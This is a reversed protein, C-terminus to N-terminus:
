WGIQRAAPSRCILPVLPTISYPEALTLRSWAVLSRGRKAGLGPITSLEVLSPPLRKEEAELAALRGAKVMGAIKGALDRGIGPLESLDKGESLMKEASEPLGELTRGANRYARVRFPNAGGIELLEALRYFAAAIESNRVTM